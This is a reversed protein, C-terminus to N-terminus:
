IAQKGNQVYLYISRIATLTMALASFAGFPSLEWPTLTKKDKRHATANRTTAVADVLKQQHNHIVGQAFLLNALQGAGSAKGAEKGLGRDAAVHRLFDEIAQGSADASDRPDSEYKLLAEALLSRDIEDLYNNADRGLRRANFLRAKAESEVDAASLAGLEDSTQPQFEPVLATTGDESRLIGLDVAWRILTQLKSADSEPLDLLLRTKRTAVTESEGLAIGEILMEFPRFGLLARRLIQEKTAESMGRAVGEVSVSFSGDAQRDLIGLTVLAPLAKRATSPSFGAFAALDELDSNPHAACAEMFAGLTSIPVEGLRLTSAVM